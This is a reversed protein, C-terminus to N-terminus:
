SPGCCSSNSGTCPLTKGQGKKASVEALDAVTLLALVIRELHLVHALGVDSPYTVKTRRARRRAETLVDKTWVCLAELDGARIRLYM